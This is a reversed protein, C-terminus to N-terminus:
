STGEHSIYCIKVHKNFDFAFFCVLDVFNLEVIEFAAHKFELWKLSVIAVIPKVLHISKGYM